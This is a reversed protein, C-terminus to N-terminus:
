LARYAIITQSDGLKTKAGLVLDKTNLTDLYLEYGQLNVTKNDVHYSNSHVIVYQRNNINDTLTYRLVSNDYSWELNINRAEINSKSFLDTTNHLAILKQYNKFVDLNKIKLSYDLENVEYGSDYSNHDLNKTRLFEEGANIFNIGQSTLVVANTQMAMNKIQEENTYGALIIRDYIVYNDHCSAYNVTKNVEHNGNGPKINGKIGSSIKSVIEDSSKANATTWGKSDKPNDSGKLADRMQDNFCGFNEFQNMNDQKAQTSGDIGPALAAWPEGYVTINPDVNDRLNKTLQNMTEIDHIGMLDFRFGGLKYESAWFETSDKMFKRFMPNNSATENGCGSADLIDGTPSYRFYYGPVAINLNSDNIAAVHNYVVDMIINIGENSYAQVLKKFEMIKAYGDYPDNSFGGDLSNYNVPNYGWNFKRAEIREDNESDFIPLLQVTNVGLEKIHDFGTKVTVDGKTYTTGAEFFGTFNKANEETGTWTDSSTLDAVHTEYVVLEQDRKGNLKVDDWGEPNTKSFDVIMGRMGNIGTSKAYPDVIEADEHFSNNIVYTYYKGGLDSKETYEWTGNPGKNMNYEIYNNDGGPLIVETGYSIISYPTGTEYIRLKVSSSVPSWLRFTTEEPTYIAGLEGNYTYLNDFIKTQYLSSLDCGATVWKQSEGFRAKAEIKSSLEPLKNGYDFTISKKDESIAVLAKNIGNSAVTEDNILIEFDSIEKNGVMTFKANKNAEDYNLNFSTIAPNVKGDASTFVDGINEKLYIHYYGKEDAEFDDFKIFRDKGYDKIWSNDPKKNFVLFGLPNDTFDVKFKEFTTKYYAGFDDTGNFGYQKGQSGKAWLWLKWANYNKDARQYHIVFGEADGEGPVVPDPKSPKPRKTPVTINPRSTSDENGGCSMLSFSALIILIMAFFRKM